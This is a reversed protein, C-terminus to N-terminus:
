YNWFIQNRRYQKKLYMKVLKSYTWERRKSSELVVESSSHFDGKGFVDFVLLDTEVVPSSEGDLEDLAFSLNRGLRRELYLDVVCGYTVLDPVVGEHKMHVISLHLDWFMCMRSFALARVNFTTLDPRFGAEVMNLFERQLSKMKFNAAYSLLLLNWLLNGTNRRGLGVDRLFEGLKYFKNKSIYARAVARIAEEEILIRSRKMRHYAVEMEELSGFMSYYKVFANGILSDVKLGRSVMIKIIDEMMNLQGSEGFCSVALSYIGLESGFDRSVSEQVIRVIEDFVGSKAYVEMLASVIEIDPKYSSSIIEGWLAQANSFKGNQAYYLMLASLSACNPQFSLAKM